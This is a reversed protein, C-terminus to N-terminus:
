HSSGPKHESVRELSKNNLQVTFDDHVQSLGYPSGILMFKTKKINLTFWSQILKMDHNMKYELQLSYVASSCSCNVSEPSVGHLALKGLLFM